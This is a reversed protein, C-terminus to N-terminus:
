AAADRPDLRLTHELTNPEVMAATSAPSGKGYKARYADSVKSVTDADNALVATVPIAQGDAHLIVEPQARAERYWRGKLAYESRVFAGDGVVVIWITTRHVTAGEVATTEIQVERVRDLAELTAADFRDPMAGM